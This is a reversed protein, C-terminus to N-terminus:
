CAQTVVNLRSAPIDLRRRIAGQLSKASYSHVTHGFVEVKQRATAFATTFALV